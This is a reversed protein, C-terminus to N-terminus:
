EKIWLTSVSQGQNEIELCYAGAPLNRVDLQHHIAEGQLVQNSLIHGEVSWLRVRVRVFYNFLLDLTLIDQAPNPYISFTIVGPLAHFSSGQDVDMCTFASCGLCDTVTVCYTGPGIQEITDNTSGNSWLYIYPTCGDTPGVSASGNSQGPSAMTTQPNLEWPKVIFEGALGNSLNYYSGSGSARLEVSRVMYSVWGEPVCPDTYFLDTIPDVNLLSYSQDPATKKYIFYGLAAAPDEWSLHIQLGDQIINLNEVPPLIHMRLTPDGMLGIHVFRRSFHAWYLSYNNLMLKPAMGTHEGLAMHHFIWNPRNGWTSVLTPGKSAIAARLFDNPYDWDGFYSGFLMTFVTQLSDDVMLTTSSIDSASEPGGGGCGYSWLWSENLLTTRYPKEKVQDIGFMTSFNKWPVQGLGEKFGPINNDILGREIVPIKGTLWAHDKNLYRRLLEEESQPFKDMNAFDVRGIQLRVPGPCTHNDFKGDGPKNGNRSNSLNITILSDTWISDLEAYFGDCPWAGLHEPHGDPAIDGSFPVAVHGIIFVAENMM